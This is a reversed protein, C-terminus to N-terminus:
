ARAEVYVAIGREVLDKARQSEFDVVEGYKFFHDVYKLPNDSASIQTRYGDIKDIRVSTKREAKAKKVPEETSDPRKEPLNEMSEGDPESDVLMSAQTKEMLEMMEVMKEDEEKYPSNERKVTCNQVNSPNGFREIIENWLISPSSPSFAICHGKEKEEQHLILPSHHLVLPSISQRLAQMATKYAAENFILGAYSRVNKGDKNKGRHPEIGGCLRKLQRGFYSENVVEGVKYNCWEKYAEYIPESPTRSTFPHLEDYECFQEIFTAVSSSQESYEAFMEAGARKHIQRSKGIAQSRFLLLNLIGSLERETTLKEFLAPDRQKELQNNPDPDALFIYPLDVKVFRELWGKSNDDIQPMSNTDVISQFFPEFQIRSQNKRDSDIVGNGSTLKIFDTGISEKRKGTESAIWGRKCYFGGAAFNNKRVEALPMDRFAAKGFFQKLLREYIGKGNRGLGLLFLVYPLPEKIATAVFWDILTIRDSINPTISELFALFAPCCAAPDFSVSIQDTILDELRYDRAEGTLLNVVGNKVGLLYPDPDFSVPKDLLENRVRRLTERLNRETTLDGGAMCLVRDIIREGNAEFIQDNFYYIEGSDRSMALNLKSLVAKAAMTPSFRWDNGEEDKAYAIDGLAIESSKAATDQKYFERADEIARDITRERYDEREIWKERKGLGSQSFLREMQERDGGTWFALRNMLAMDSASNDGGYKETSGNWLLAFDIGNAAKLAKEIVQEDTLCSGPCAAGQSGCAPPATSKRPGVGTSAEPADQFIVTYVFDLAAKDERIETPANPPVNGTMVFFRGRSYMEYNGKRNRSGEPLAPKIIAHVGTGSQSIETYTKLRSLLNNSLEDSLKLGESTISKEDLCHDFDVGTYDGNFFFGVGSFKLAGDEYAAKVEEFNSWSNPDTSSALYGGPHYPKKTLKGKADPELKWCCWQKLSKLETPIADFSKVTIPAAM